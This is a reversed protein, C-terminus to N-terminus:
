GCAEFEESQVLLLGPNGFQMLIRHYSERGSVKWSSSSAELAMHVSPRPSPEQNDPTTAASASAVHCMQFGAGTLFQTLKDRCQKALSSM